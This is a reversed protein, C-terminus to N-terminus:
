EGALAAAAALIHQATFPKKVFGQVSKGAFRPAVQSENYGSCIAVPLGPRLERLRDLTEVGDMGPMALDLLVLDLERGRERVV